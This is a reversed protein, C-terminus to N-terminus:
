YGPNQTMNPNYDLERNPIPLLEQYKQINYYDVALNHRKLFAFNGIGYVFINTRIENIAEIGTKNTNLGKAKLVQNLYLQAKTNANEKYLCEAYCLVVDSYTLLPTVPPISITIGSKTNTKDSMLAFILESSRGSLNNIDDKNSYDTADLDYFGNDIVQKLLPKAEDYKEQMLYINALIIRAVDKSLFFFDNISTIDLSKNKKEELTPLASILKTELLKLIETYNDRSVYMNDMTPTKTIYPVDGWITIMYYYQIASFVNFLDTYVGLNKMDYEKMQCLYRNAKYYEAWMNHIRGNQPTINQNVLNDVQNNYHYYQEVLNYEAFSNRFAIAIASAMIQGDKGLKPIESNENGEQKLKLVAVKNGLCDYISVDKSKELRSNLTEVSIDLVKNNISAQYNINNNRYDDYFDIYFNESDINGSNEDDVKGELYVPIPSTIKIQYKGGNFPVNIETKDLIVSEGDELVENGAVGDDDWDFFLSLDQVEIPLGLDNYRSLINNKIEDLKLEDRDKRIQEKTTESFDGSESFEKSIKALYETLQAETRNFILLSSIAILAASEETGQMISFQTIDNSIYKQLGFLTLIEKQSQSTADSFSTGKSVLNEIRKYQLHTLINVNVTEKNSLDALARLSLTGSSLVGQVENFFYGNAILEAYPADFLKSGFSFNGLNDEIVSSYVGGLAQLKSSMPQITITSGSIFPGKEVKGSVNFTQPEYDDLNSDKDCSIAGLCLLSIAISKIKM